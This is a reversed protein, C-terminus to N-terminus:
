TGLHVVDLHQALQPFGTHVDTLRLSRALNKFNAPKGLPRNWECHPHVERMAGVLVVLTHNVVDTLHQFTHWTTGGMWRTMKM